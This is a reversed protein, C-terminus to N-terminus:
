DPKRCITLLNDGGAQDAKTGRTVYGNEEVKLGVVEALRQMRETTFAHVYREVNGGDQKWPVFVDGHDYGALLRPLMRLRPLFYRSRYLNWNMLVIRAGPKAVRYAERLAMRRYRDSPVHHLSATLLVLDFSDDAYPLALMDGVRFEALMDGVNKRAAAILGASGDIGEYSIAKDSFVQYARGNGCGIDLVTGGHEVMTALREMEPWPAYRTVSFGDAITDYVGRVSRLLRDALVDRMFRCELVNAVAMM